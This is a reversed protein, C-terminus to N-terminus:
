VTEFEIADALESAMKRMGDFHARRADNTRGSWTDDPGVGIVHSVCSATAEARTKDHKLMRVFQGAIFAMGEAEAIANVGSALSEAQVGEAIRAALAARRSEVPELLFEDTTEATLHRIRYNVLM